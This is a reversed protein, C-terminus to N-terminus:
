SVSLTTKSEATALAPNDEVRVQQLAAYAYKESADWDRASKELLMAQRLQQASLDSRTELLSMYRDRESTADADHLLQAIDLIDGSSLSDGGQLIADRQYMSYAIIMDGRETYYRARALDYELSLDDLQAQEAPSDSEARWRQQWRMFQDFQDLSLLLRGYDLQSEFAWSDEPVLRRAIDEAREREGLDVCIEALRLLAIPQSQYQSILQDLQRSREVSNDSIPAQIGALNQELSLRMLNSQMAASRQDAPISELVSVARKVDGRASLYLGYAFRMEASKDKDAWDAMLADGRAQEGVTVLGTALDSRQWPSTPQRALVRNIAAIYGDRNRQPNIGALAELDEDIRLSQLQEAIRRRQPASYETDALELAARRGSVAQRLQVRGWLASRNSSDRRLAELYYVDATLPKANALDALGVYTEPNSPDIELAINLEEQAQQYKGSKIYAEARRLSSWYSSAKILSAWKSNMDPDQNYRAANKFYHLARDHDGRRMYVTGVGGNVEADESRGRLAYRLLPEAETVRNAELLALGQKKARYYPDKLREREEAQQKLVNRYSNQISLDSPYREALLAYDALVASGLPLRGLTRLWSDAARRGLGDGQALRRYTALAAPDHPNQRSQFEALTLELLAVDPYERNLDILRSLVHAEKGEIFSLVDLLELELKLSPMGDPFLAKYITLADGYRAARRFIRAQQLANRKSTMSLIYASLQRTALSDPDALKRAELIAKARDVDDNILAKQAQFFFAAPHNPELLLLRDLASELLDPKELADALQMRKVLDAVVPDDSFEDSDNREFAQSDVSEFGFEAPSSQESSPSASFFWQYLLGSLLVFVAFYVWRWLKM